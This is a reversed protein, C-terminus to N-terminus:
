ISRGMSAQCGKRVAMCVRAMSVTYGVRPRAWPRGIAGLPAPFHGKAATSQAQAIAGM